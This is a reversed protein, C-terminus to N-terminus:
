RRADTTVYGRSNGRMRERIGRGNTLAARHTMTRAGREGHVLRMRLVLALMRM